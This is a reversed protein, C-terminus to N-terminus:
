DTRTAAIAIFGRQFDWALDIPRVGAKKAEAVTQETGEPGYGAFHGFSASGERKPNPGLVRVRASDGRMANPIKRGVKGRVGSGTYLTGPKFPAGEELVEVKSSNNMKSDAM